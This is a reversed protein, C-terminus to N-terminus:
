RNTRKGKEIKEIKELLMKIEEQQGKPLEQLYKRFIEMAEKNRGQMKLLRMLKFDILRKADGSLKKSAGRLIKIAENEQGQKIYFDAVSAYLIDLGFQNKMNESIKVAEELKGMKILCSILGTKSIEIIGPTKAHKIVYDFNQAAKKYEKKSLYTNGELAYTQILCTDSLYEKKMKGLIQLAEDLKNMRQLVKVKMEYAGYFRKDGIKEQTKLLKDLIQLSEEYKKHWLLDHAVAVNETIERDPLNSDVSDAYGCLSFVM